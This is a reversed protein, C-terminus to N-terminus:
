EHRLINIWGILAIVMLILGLVSVYITTPIGWLLFVTGIAMFLPWFTPKPLDQPEAYHWTDDPEHNHSM